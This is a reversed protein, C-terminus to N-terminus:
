MANACPPLVAPNLNAATTFNTNKKLYPRRLRTASPNAAALGAKKDLKRCLILSMEEASTEIAAAKWVEGAWTFDKNVPLEAGYNKQVNQM